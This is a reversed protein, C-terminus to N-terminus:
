TLGDHRRSQFVQRDPLRVATLVGHSITDIGITHSTIRPHPWGDTDVVADNFHGYVVTLEGSYHEPFGTAGWTFTRSSQGEITVVDPDLGAHACIADPTAHVLALSRLFECHSQPMTDLFLDYPLPKHEMYLALGGNERGEDIVQAAEESYSRITPLAEMVLLWSHKTFDAMTRLLFEEHNGRLCTVQGRCRHRFALITEICGKSDPGRDIYDGLFVVQDASGIEREMKQLLDQLADFNGHIDGIAFTAV